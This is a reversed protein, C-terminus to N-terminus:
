PRGFRFRPPAQVSLPLGLDEKPHHYREAFEYTYRLILDVVDYDPSEGAEFLSIQEDLLDLLAITNVHEQRLGNLFEAM